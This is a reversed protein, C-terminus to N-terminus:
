EKTYNITKPPKEELLSVRVTPTVPAAKLIDVFRDAKERLQIIQDPDKHSLIVNLFIEKGEIREHPFNQLHKRVAKINKLGRWKVSMRNSFLRVYLWKLSDDAGSIRIEHRMGKYLHDSIEQYLYRNCRLISLVRPATHIDYFLCEWILLRIELPLKEFNGLQTSGHAQPRQRENVHDM